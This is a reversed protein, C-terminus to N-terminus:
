GLMKQATALITTYITWCTSPKDWLGMRYQTEYSGITVLQRVIRDMGCYHPCFCDYVMGWGDGNKNIAHNGNGPMAPKHRGGQRLGHSSFHRRMACRCRFSIRSPSPLIGVYDRPLIYVYICIYMYVYKCLYMYVYIVYICLYM